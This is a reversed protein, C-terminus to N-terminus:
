RVSGQPSFDLRKDPWSLWGQLLYIRGISLIYPIAFSFAVIVTSRALSDSARATSPAGEAEAAISM